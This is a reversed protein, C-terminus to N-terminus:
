PLTRIENPPKVTCLGILDKGDTHYAYAENNAMLLIQFGPTNTDEKDALPCGLADYPWKAPVIKLLSVEDIDIGLKKALSEKAQQTLSEFAPDPTVTYDNATSSQPTATPNTIVVSGITPAPFKLPPSASQPSSLAPKQLPNEQSVPLPSNSDKEDVQYSRCGALVLAFLLLLSIWYTKM